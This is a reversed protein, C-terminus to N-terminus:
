AVEFRLDDFRFGVPFDDFGFQVLDFDFMQGPVNLQQREEKGLLKELAAGIVIADVNEKENMTEDGFGVKQEALNLLLELLEVVDFEVVDDSRMTGFLPTERTFERLRQGDEAHNEAFVDLLNESELWKLEVAIRELAISAEDGSVSRCM